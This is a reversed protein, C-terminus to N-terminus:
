EPRVTRREEESDIAKQIMATLQIVEYILFLASQRAKEAQFRINKDLMVNEWIEDVFVKVFDLEAQAEQMEELIVAYAEHNSNFYRGNVRQAEYLEMDVMARIKEKMSEVHEDSLRSM